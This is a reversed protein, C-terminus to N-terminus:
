SKKDPAKPRPTRRKPTQRVVKAFQAQLGELQARLEGARGEAAKAREDFRASEIRLEMVQQETLARAKREAAMARGTVTVKETADELARELRAIEGVMDTKEKDLERRMADLAQRQTDVDAQAAKVAVAWAQNFVAMVKEPLAPINAPVQGAHEQRWVALHTNITTYSGSGIRNRVNQVTPPTGEDLLATAAEFVQKKSIGQRAM